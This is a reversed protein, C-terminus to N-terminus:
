QLLDVVQQLDFAMPGAEDFRTSPHLLGGRFQYSASTEPDILWIHRIGMREYDALKVLIRKMADEPSLIEFVALPPHRVIQERPAAADLIAIDPVRYRTEAVQVRLEPYVRLNWDSEHNLFFRMLAKQWTSHDLEGMPREEIKGDVYEADPEYDSHLYAQLPSQLTTAM